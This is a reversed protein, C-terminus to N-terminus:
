YISPQINQINFIKSNNVIKNVNKKIFHSILIKIKYKIM